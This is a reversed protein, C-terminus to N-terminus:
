SNWSSIAGAHLRERGLAEELEDFARATDNM